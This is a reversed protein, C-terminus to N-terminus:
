PFWGVSILINPFLCDWVDSTPKFISTVKQYSSQANYVLFRFGLMRKSGSIVCKLIYKLPIVM